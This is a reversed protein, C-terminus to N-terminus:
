ERGRRGPLLLPLSNTHCPALKGEERTHVNCKTRSGRPASASTFRSNSMGGAGKTCSPKAIGSALPFLPHTSISWTMTPVSKPSPEKVSDSMGSDGFKPRAAGWQLRGLNQEFAFDTVDGCAGIVRMHRAVLAGHGIPPEREVGILCKKPGFLAHNLEILLVAGINPQPFVM